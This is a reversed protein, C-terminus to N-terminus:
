AHCAKRGARTLEPARRKLVWSVTNAAIGFAQAVDQVRKGSRVQAVIATDRMWLDGRKASAVATPTSQTVLHRTEPVEITFFRHGNTCKRRRRLTAGAQGDRTELVVVNMTGCTPCKM